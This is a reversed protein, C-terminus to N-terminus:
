RAAQRGAMEYVAVAGGFGKVSLPPLPSAAVLESVGAYTEADMLIQGPEASACLRAALNVAPGIATYDLRDDSGISGVLVDGTAIGVGVSLGGGGPSAASIARQIEVGCRIADLAMDPGTFHAFVADGIFKDVDGHFRKVLDAQLSLYRNLVAVADEPARAGAFATFGRIDAFLLTMVRREGARAGPEPRRQIMEMTSASVFRTMDARERLGATMQNFARALQGIEDARPVDLRVDFNGNAVQTTARVLEGVPATISRALWASGAVGLSAAVVGLLLLGLQLNRYPALAQDRSQLVITRRPGEPELVAGVAQFREGTLTLSIPEIDASAPVDGARAWSLRSRPLSSAEVSTPSLVVVDADVADRLSSAWGDDIPSAAMVIGFVTGASEAAAAAAHHVKGDVIIFGLAPRGEALPTLWAREVDPLDLPAFTDSRAVVQGRSDLALLLGRHGHRERYDGLFDRVTAADTALLARLEPFSAVMGAVLQLRAFQEAEAAAVARRSRELEEAIRADVTRDALRSVYALTVLTLGVILAASTILLRSRLTRFRM